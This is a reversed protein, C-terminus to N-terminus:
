DYKGYPYGMTQEFLTELSAFQEARDTQPVVFNGFRDMHSNMAHDVAFKTYPERLHLRGALRLLTAIERRSPHEQTLLEFFRQELKSQERFHWQIKRAAGDLCFEVIKEVIESPLQPLTNM